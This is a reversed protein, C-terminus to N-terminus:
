DFLAAEPKQSVASRAPLDYITVQIERASLVEDILQQVLGWSGGGYGAGIRPMHISAGVSAAFEALQELCRKLAAYRLRPTPSPGYGHQCVMQFVTTKDDVRTHRVNGLRLAEPESAVWEQFATQVRPWKKRVALGFGAGWNPTKDNVVHAIIRHGDPRPETADGVLFTLATTTTKVLERPLLLGAVRPLTEGPFSAVGVCEVHIKKHSEGWCEDGKATYGIATCQAVISGEPLSSGSALDLRWHRSGVTYDLLYTDFHVNNRKSAVFMACPTETQRVIRLLVAETSVQFQNRLELARDIGITEKKLDPFSGVPMLFEAAGLNCLMEMQWEDGRQDSVPHRHRITEKCDPFLSHALEHAISFRVREKPKNPNFEIQMRDEASLTRADSVDESPVVRIGLHEALKAPDFPPGSWGGQMAQLAIESAQSRIYSIPDDARLRLVSDHTWFSRKM